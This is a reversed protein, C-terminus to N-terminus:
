ANRDPVLGHWCERTLSLPSLPAFGSRVDLNASNVSNVSDAFGASEVRGASDALPAGDSGGVRAGASGSAGSDRRVVWGGM